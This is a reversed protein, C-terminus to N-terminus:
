QPFNSEPNEEENEDLADSDTAELDAMNTIFHQNLEEQQEFNYYVIAAIAFSSFFVLSRIKYAKM